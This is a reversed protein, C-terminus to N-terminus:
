IGLDEDSLDMDEDSDNAPDPKLKAEEALVRAQDMLKLAEDIELSPAYKKAYLITFQTQIEKPTDESILMEKVANYRSQFNQITENLIQDNSMKTAPLEYTFKDIENEDLNTTLKLIGKYFKTISPNFDLQYSIVRGAFKTNALQVQRSFDAENLYNIIASPVGTALIYASRLWELFENNIKIDQGSVIETEIAREGSRGTPYYLENGNSIKNLATTYQFMDALNLNRSQKKRVIEQIKSTVDRDIASNKIYNVKTDNSYQVTSMIYFMLMLMYLNAYFLAQDLMSRGEGNEDKNVPFEYVYEVPIFQFRVNRENINYYQIADVILHKFKVNDNLWSKDFAGVIQQAIFDVMTSKKSSPDGYPDTFADSVVGDLVDVRKDIIYLYGIKEDLIKIPIMRMPEVMKIYVDKIDTVLDKKPVDDGLLGESSDTKPKGHIKQFLNSDDKNSTKAETYYKNKYYSLSSSGEELLPLPVSDTCITVRKLLEDVNEKYDNIISTKSSKNEDVLDELNEEASEKVVSYYRDKRTKDKNYYDYVTSETYPLNNFDSGLESSGKAKIFDNFIKDYPIVYAYYTGYELGKPIIFEKTKQQLEYKKEVNEIIARIDNARETDINTLNLVRNVYGTVIDSGIIADRTANVAEKLEVLLSSIDHICQQKAFKNKFEDDILRDLQYVSTGLAGDQAFLNVMSSSEKARSMMDNRYDSKYLKSIFSTTTDAGKGNISDENSKLLEHFRANAADVDDEDVPTGYVGLSMRNILATLNSLLAKDKTPVKGKEDKDAM